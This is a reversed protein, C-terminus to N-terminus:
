GPIKVFFRTPFSRFHAGKKVFALFGTTALSEAIKLTCFATYFGGRVNCFPCTLKKFGSGCKEGM